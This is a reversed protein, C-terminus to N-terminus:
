TPMKIFLHSASKETLDRKISTKTRQQHRHWSCCNCFLRLEPVDLLKFIVILLENPTVVETVVIWIHNAIVIGHKHQFRTCTVSLIPSFPSESEAPKNNSRSSGICWNLSYITGIIKNKTPVGKLEEKRDISLGSRGDWDSAICWSSYLM